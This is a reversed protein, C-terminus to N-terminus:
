GIQYCKYLISRLRAGWGPESEWESHTFYNQYALHLDEPLPMPDLWILGCTKESCQKLNWTGSVDFFFDKLDKYLPTGAAKCLHCNPQPRTRIENRADTM